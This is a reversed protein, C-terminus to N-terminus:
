LVLSFVLNTLYKNHRSDLLPPLTWNLCVKLNLAGYLSFLRSFQGILYIIFMSLLTIVFCGVLSFESLLHVCSVPLQSTYTSNESLEM